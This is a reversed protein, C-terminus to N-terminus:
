GPKDTPAGYRIHIAAAAIVSARQFLRLIFGGGKGGGIATHRM